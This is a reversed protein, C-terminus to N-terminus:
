PRIHFPFSCSSVMMKEKRALRELEKTDREDSDLDSEGDSKEKKIKKRGKKKKEDESSGVKRKKSTRRGLCILISSIINLAGSPQNGPSSRERM